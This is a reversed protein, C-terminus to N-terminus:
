HQSRLHYTLGPASVVERAVLPCCIWEASLTQHKMCLERTRVGFAHRKFANEALRAIEEATERDSARVDFHASNAVAGFGLNAFYVLGLALLGMKGFGM